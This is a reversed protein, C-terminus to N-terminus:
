FPNKAIEGECSDTLHKMRQPAVTSSVTVDVHILEERTEHFIDVTDKEKDVHGPKRWIAFAVVLLLCLLAMKIRDSM